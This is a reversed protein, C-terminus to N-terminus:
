QSKTHNSKSIWERPTCCHFFLLNLKIWISTCQGFSISIFIKKLLFLFSSKEQLLVFNSLTRFSSSQYPEANFSCAAISGCFHLSTQQNLLSNIIPFNMCFESFNVLNTPRGIDPLTQTCHVPYLRNFSSLPKAAHTHTHRNRHKFSALPLLFLVLLRM